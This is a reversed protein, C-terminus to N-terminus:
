EVFRSWFLENGVLDAALEEFGDKPAREIRSVDFGLRLRTEAQSPEPLFDFVGGHHAIRLCAAILELATRSPEEASSSMAPQLVARLGRGPILIELGSLTEELRVGGYSQTAHVLTTLFPGVVAQIANPPGPWDPPTARPAAWELGITAAVIPDLVERVGSRQAYTLESPATLDGPLSSSVAGLFSLHRRYLERWSLGEAAVYESGARERPEEALRIVAKLGEGVHRLGSERFLALAALSVIRDSAALTDVSMMKQRVLEERELRVTYLEMARKLTVELEPVEWPKTIYRYIGGKNVSDVAADIDAYATSLIRVVNPKLLAVKELFDTGSENPMRQDTVVVGIEEQFERFRELGAVGDEALVVRFNKGFLKAFYKRTKAEDDVFLVLHQRYELSQQSM